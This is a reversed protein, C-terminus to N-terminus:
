KRTGECSPFTLSPHIHTDLSHIGWGSRCTCIQLSWSRTLSWLRTKTSSLLPFRVTHEAWRAAHGCVHEPVGGTIIQIMQKRCVLILQETINHHHNFDVAGQVASMWISCLHYNDLANDFCESLPWDTYSCKIISYICKASLPAPGNIDSHLISVQAWIIKFDSYYRVATICSGLQM